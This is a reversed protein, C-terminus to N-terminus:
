SVLIDEFEGASRLEISGVKSYINLLATMQSIIVTLHCSLDSTVDRTMHCVRM